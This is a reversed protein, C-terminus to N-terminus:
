WLPASLQLPPPLLLPLPQPLPPPLSSALLSPVALALTPSEAWPIALPLVLVAAAANHQLEELKGYLRRIAIAGGSFKVMRLADSFEWDSLFNGDPGCLEQGGTEGVFRKAM